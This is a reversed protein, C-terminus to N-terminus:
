QSALTFNIDDGCRVLALELLNVLSRFHDVFAGCRIKGGKFILILPSLLPPISTNLKHMIDDRFEKGSSHAVLRSFQLIRDNDDM